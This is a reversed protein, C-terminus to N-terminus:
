NWGVKTNQTPRLSLVAMNIQSIDLTLHFNHNGILETARASISAGRTGCSSYSNIANSGKAM